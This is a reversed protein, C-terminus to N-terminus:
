SQTSRNSMPLAIEPGASATAVAERGAQNGEESNPDGPEGVPRAGAKSHNPACSDTGSSEESAAPAAEPQKSASSAGDSGTPTEIQAPGARPPSGAVEGVPDEAESIILYEVSLDAM